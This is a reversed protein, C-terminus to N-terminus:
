ACAERSLCPEWHAGSHCYFTLTRLLLFSLLVVLSPLSVPGVPLVLPEFWQLETPNANQVVHSMCRLGLVKNPIEHDNVLPLILPIVDSLHQALNPFSIFSLCWEVLYRTSPCKKWDNKSAGARMRQRLRALLLDANTNILTPLSRHSLRQCLQDLLKTSAERNNDSTWGANPDTVLFCGCTLLIDVWM